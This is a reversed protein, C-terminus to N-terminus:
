KLYSRVNITFLFLLYYYMFANNANKPTNGVTKCLQFREVIDITVQKNDQIKSVEIDTQIIKIGYLTMYM